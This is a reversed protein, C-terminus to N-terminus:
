AAKISSQLRAIQGAIIEANSTALAKAQKLEWLKIASFDATPTSSHNVEVELTGQDLYVFYSDSEKRTNSVILKVEKSIGTYQQLQVYLTVTTKM